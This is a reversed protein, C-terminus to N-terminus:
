LAIIHGAPAVHDILDHSRYVLPGKAHALVTKSLEVFTTPGVHYFIDLLFLIEKSAM